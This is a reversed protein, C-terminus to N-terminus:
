RTLLETLDDKRSWYAIDSLGGVFEFAEPGWVDLEDDFLSIFKLGEPGLRLHSLDYWTAVTHEVVRRATARSGTSLVNVLSSHDAARVHFDVNWTNGSRGALKEGREFKIEREELFEEVEDNISAATQGRFTFWLDAVRLAAQSLRSVADSIDEMRRVRVMLMGRFFEVGQTLRVDEILRRQRATKRNAVTQMRLWGLTEGLDTLTGGDETLFLDIVDGDPYLYPTRIRTYGNIPSCEFLEGMGGAIYDCPTTM